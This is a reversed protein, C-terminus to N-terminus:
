AGPVALESAARRLRAQTSGDGAFAELGTRLADAAAQPENLVMRSRMLRIWGEADRPDARLRAALGDVMGRVMADQRSPPIGRAAEIQERTPGPIAATATSPRQPPLRSAIDIGNERGITLVAERVQPEWPADAPAERLLAVLEDLAGEHDGRSDRLTALYYRAQPNGPEIELARRFLREAEPPPQRGGQLLLVEGLYAVYAANQPRLESARRFASASEAFMGQQRLALGLHYWGADNDPDGRLRERLGAITAEANQPQEGAAVSENVPAEGAESGFAKVAVAGLALVGAACLALTAAGSRAPTRAPTRDTEDMPRIM